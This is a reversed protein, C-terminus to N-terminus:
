QIRKYYVCDDIEGFEASKFEAYLTAKHEYGLSEFLARSPANETWILAKIIEINQAKAIDELKAIIKGALGRRRDHPSIAVSVEGLHCQYAEGQVVTGIGIIDSKQHAVVTTKNKKNLLRQVSGEDLGWYSCPTPDAQLSASLTIIGSVDHTKATEITLNQMTNSKTKIAVNTTNISSYFQNIQLPIRFFSSSPIM